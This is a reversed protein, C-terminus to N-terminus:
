VRRAANGILGYLPLIADIMAPIGFLRHAREVNRAAMQKRLTPDSLRVIADALARPDEHPVIFGTEGDVIQETTGGTLTRVPVLGAAMAEVAGIAFGEFRSPLVFLDSAWLAPRVDSMFGAFRFAAADEAGDRAAYAGIERERDAGGSGVFLCRVKLAPREARLLRVADILIDPGKVWALRAPLVCVLEDPEFGFQARAAAGEAPSPPYFHALDTGAAVKTVRKKHPIRHQRLFRVSEDSLVVLWDPFFLSLYLEQAAGFKRNADRRVTELGGLVSQHYTGVLPVGTLTAVLKGLCLMGLGHANIAAIRKERVYAVVRRVLSPSPFRRMGEYVHWEEMAEELLMRKRESTADARVPGSILHVHVGRRKLGAALTQCYTAIGDNCNIVETLFLVRSDAGPEPQVPAPSAASM